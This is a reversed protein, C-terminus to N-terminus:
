RNERKKRVDALLPLKTKNKGALDRYDDSDRAHRERQLTPAHNRRCACAYPCWSCHNDPNIPYVGREVLQILVRLTELLGDRQAGQVGEYLSRSPREDDDPDFQPGVGLLEVAAEGALLGYLAAQLSRGKLMATVDTKPALNGSTKYDAVVVNGGSRLVRDFRGVADVAVGSGLEVPSRAQCEFEMSDPASEIIRPIDEHLFLRIAKLWNEEHVSWLTTFRKGIRRRMGSTEDRWLRDLMGLASDLVGEASEGGFAGDRWLSHYLRELVAHVALGIENPLLDFAPSEDDLPQIALVRDFLFQLPCRGLAEFASASLTAPRKASGGIRGDYSTPGGAFSETASLMALGSELPPCRDILDDAAAEPSGGRLALLLREEAASLMGTGDLLTELRHLPDAPIRVAKENLLSAYDPKGFVIRAVERLALSPTLARGSDDSRQWSIDIGEGASGLIMALLLHEEDESEEQVPLPRGTSMRLRKRIDDGLFPDERAIRPFRGSNIGILFLRRFTLGRAQMADLVRIGGDDPERPALGGEDVAAELWELAALPTVDNRVGPVADMARMEVLLDLLKEIAAGEDELLVERAIREVHDAHGSWSSTGRRGYRENLHRVAGAIPEAQSRRGKRSAWDLLFTTWEELGGLIGAERSWAEALEGAPPPSGPMLVDWRLRRSSLLEATAARPFGDCIARLLILLDHIVPERRLPMEISTTWPIGAEELSSELMPAYPELSRAVIGIETAPLGQSAAELASRVVWEVESSGGQFDRFSVIGKELPPPSALEDYLSELRDGFLCRSQTGGELRAIEDDDVLHNDAFRRGYLGDPLLVTVRSGDDLTRLLDLHVGVLEYAGHLLIAEYREGFPRAQKVAEAMLGARDVLGKERRLMHLAGVYRGYIEALDREGRGDGAASLLEEPGIRAERLEELTAALARRAGPRREIFIKWRNEDLGGSALVGQIVASRTREPLIEPVGKGAAELIWLAAAHFHMVDVNLWAARERGLRRQVHDALRATPVLVLVPALPDPKKADTIRSILERELVYPDIHALVKM